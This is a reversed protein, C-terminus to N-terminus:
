GTQAPTRGTSLAKSAPVRRDYWRRSDITRIAPRSDCRDVDRHERVGDFYSDQLSGGRYPEGDTFVVVLLDQEGAIFTNNAFPEEDSFCATTGPDVGASTVRIAGLGGLGKRRTLEIRKNTM